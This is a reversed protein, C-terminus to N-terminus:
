PTSSPSRAEPRSTPERCSAASGSAPTERKKAPATETAPPDPDTPANKKGYAVWAPWDVFAELVGLINTTTLIRLASAEAAGIRYNLSLIGVAMEFIEMDDIVTPAEPDAPRGAQTAIADWIRDAMRGAAAFRPLIETVLAGDPGIAMSSPLRTGGPFCRGVPVIWDAGDALRVAPGDIMEARELDGPGPAPEADTTGVYVGDRGPIPAWTQRDPWFGVDQGYEGAAIVVGGRKAPGPGAISERATPTGVVVDTLGAAALTEGTAARAQEIFYLFRSAM